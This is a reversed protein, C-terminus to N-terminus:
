PIPVGLRRVIAAKLTSQGGIQKLAATAVSSTNPLQANQVHLLAEVAKPLSVSLPGEFLGVFDQATAQAIVAVDDPRYAGKTYAEVAARLTPPPNAAAARQTFAQRLAADAVSSGLPYDDLPYLKSKESRETLYTQILADAAAGRGIERLFLVVADLDSPSIFLAGKEVSTVLEAVIKKEDHEFSSKLRHWTARFAKTTDDARLTEDREAIALEFGSEELYGNEIVRLIATELSEFGYFGYDNLLMAWREEEPTRTKGMAESLSSTMWNWKRIYDLKPAPGSPDFHCWALLVAAHIAEEVAATHMRELAPALREIVTAVRRLIRVNSIGLSVTRKKVDDRYPLTEPLGWQTAEESTPAFTLEQDVVKERYKRYPHDAGELKEDNLILVVKCRANEKLNSIFGLVQDHSLKETNLREFDDICILLDRVLTPSLIDVASGITKFWSPLSDTLSKIRAAADGTGTSSYRGSIIAIRLEAISSLGFLSVYAYHEPWPKLQPDDIIKRWAYTKGVGWAGKLALVEYCEERAVFERIVKKVTEISM